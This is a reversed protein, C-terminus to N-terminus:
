AAARDGIHLYNSRFGALSQLQPLDLITLRGQKLEILAQRRLEQLTRNVHVNSLGTTAALDNQTIPLAYSNGHAQGVAQFRVLLECFLHALRESASRCGINVLWERLTGADVLTSMRLARAIRPHHQMLETITEPKIHVVECASFTTITHDMENLLAADLDGTDGPVMYAVVQRAGNARAKYRCAIGSLILFVGRPKDGERILDAGPMFRRPDASLQELVGQEAESLATFGELKRILPNGRRNQSTPDM